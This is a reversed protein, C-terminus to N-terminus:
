ADREPVGRLIDLTDLAEQRLSRPHKLMVDEEAALRELAPISSPDGLCGLAFCSWYRVEPSDDALLAILDQLADTVEMMGLAEIAHGRVDPDVDKDVAVARLPGISAPDEQWGMVYAAASQQDPTGEQLVRILGPTVEHTRMDALAKAAEWIDESEEDSLTKLLEDAIGM